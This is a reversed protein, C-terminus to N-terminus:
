FNWGSVASRQNATLDSIAGNYIGGERFQGIFFRTGGNQAGLQITGSGFTSSGADGVTGTSGNVETSSSVGNLFYQISSYAGVTVTQTVFANGAYCQAVATGFGIVTNQPGDSILNYLAGTTM